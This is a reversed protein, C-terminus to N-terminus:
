PQRAEMRRIAVKVQPHIELLVNPSNLVARWYAMLEARDAKLQAVQPDEKPLPHWVYQDLDSLVCM